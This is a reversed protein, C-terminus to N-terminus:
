SPSHRFRDMSGQRYGELDLTIYHFGLGRMTEVIRDRFGKKVIQEISKEDVEIRADNEKTMRVRFNSFGLEHLVNEAQEIMELAGSSIVQGYPIRTALCSQSPMHWTELGAAKSYQRVEKKTFGADALPARFGLQQAAKLGPLQRAMDDLNAGHAVTQIGISEATQKITSFMAKKCFYCRERDNRTVNTDALINMELCCFSLGLKGAMKGANITDGAPQFASAVTVLKVSDGLARGAAWALFTSDVGGSFAIAVTDDKEMQKLLHALKDAMDDPGAASESSNM